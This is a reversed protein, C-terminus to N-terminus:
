LLSENLRLVRLVSQFNEVSGEHKYADLARLVKRKSDVMNPTHLNKSISGFLFYQLLSTLNAVRRVKSASEFM